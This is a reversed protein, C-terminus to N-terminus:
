VYEDIYTQLHSNAMIVLHFGHEPAADRQVPTAVLCPFTKLTGKKHTGLLWRTLWCLVLSVKLIVAAPMKHTGLCWHHDWFLVRSSENQKLM